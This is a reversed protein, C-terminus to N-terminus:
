KKFDIPNKLGLFKSKLKFYEFEEEGLCTCIPSVLMQCIRKVSPNDCTEQFPPFSPLMESLCRMAVLQMAHTSSSTYDLLLLFVEDSRTDSLYDVKLIM